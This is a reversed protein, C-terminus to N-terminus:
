KLVSVDIVNYGIDELDQEVCFRVTEESSEDNYFESEVEVIFKAKVKRSENKVTEM